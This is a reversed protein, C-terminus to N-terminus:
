SDPRLLVERYRRAIEAPDFSATAEARARASAASWTGADCTARIREVAAAVDGVIWEQPYLTHPGGYRRVMPWDRVVPVAGAAVGEVLGVGFSERLSTSLIHDVSALHGPLDDTYDIFDISGLVDEAVLRRRFDQAYDRSSRVSGVQFDTGILQLRWSPDHARLRALVELAWVPDKVTQAWGILGLTRHPGDGHTVQSFRDMEVLNPIVHVRTRTLRQGVQALVVDRLHTSVFVVDAVRSWDLVHIWPSLADMSHIRLVLRVERPLQMATWVAGRDAWDAFVVDAAEMRELLEFDPTVQRGLAQALRARVTGEHPGMGIFHSRYGMDLVSTEVADGLARVVAQSFTGYSGPLVLVRDPGSRRDFERQQQEVPEDLLTQVASARLPALFTEPDEVLPSSSVDAHLERHFLVSLALTLRRAATAVDAATDVDAATAVGETGATDETALAEDAGALVATVVAAIDQDTSARASLEVVTALATLEAAVPAPLGPGRDRLAGVVEWADEHNGQAHLGSVVTRLGEGHVETFSEVRRVGALIQGTLEETLSRRPDDGVTGLLRALTFQQYTQDLEDLSMVALHPHARLVVETADHVREGGLPLFVDAAAAWEAFTEDERVLRAIRDLPETQGAQDPQTQDPQAPAPRRLVRDLRRRLGGRLRQRRTPPPPPAPAPQARLRLRRKLAQLERGFSGSTHVLDVTAGEIVLARLAPAVATMDRADPALVM